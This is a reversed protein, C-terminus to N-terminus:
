AGTCATVLALLPASACLATWVSHRLSTFIWVGNGGQRLGSRAPSTSPVRRSHNRAPGGWVVM